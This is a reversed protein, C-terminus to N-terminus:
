ALLVLIYAGYALILVAGEWRKLVFGTRAMPLVIVASLTLAGLDIREVQCSRVPAMSTSLGLVCTLNLINSGVLNGVAVDPEKRAMAALSTVLEPLSTGAAVVTIGIVTETVGMVRAFEVAGGVLLDAGYILIGLGGVLLACELPVSGPRRPQAERFEQIVEASAGKKAFYFTSASYLLFAILLLVGETFTLRADYLAATVLISLGVLVPIDFRVLELKVAVPCVLASIGLVVCINVVNSGIVNGVYVGTSGRLAADVSVALEPASTGWALITLGVVLPPIGLRGAISVSGRIFAEAGVFALTLGIGIWILSTM